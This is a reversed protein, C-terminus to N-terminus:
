VADQLKESKASLSSSALLLRTSATPTNRGAERFATRPVSITQRWRSQLPLLRGATRSCRKQSAVEAMASITQSCAPPFDEARDNMSVLLREPGSHPWGPSYKSTSNMYIDIKREIVIALDLSIRPWKELAILDNFLAASSKERAELTNQYSYVGVGVTMFLGSFLTCSALLDFSAHIDSTENARRGQIPLQESISSSQVTIRESMVPQVRPIQVHKGFIITGTLCLTLISGRALISRIGM